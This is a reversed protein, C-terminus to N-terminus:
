DKIAQKIKECDITLIRASGYIKDTQIGAQFGIFSKAKYGKSKLVMALLAITKQEGTALLVDLEKKDPETSAKNALKMLDNTADKMASLVVIIDDGQDYAKRVKDAVHKIHDVDKVSTGGYKQVRLTM